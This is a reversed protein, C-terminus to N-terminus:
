VYLGTIFFGAFAPLTLTAVSLSYPGAATGSNQAMAGILLQSKGSIPDFFYGCLAPM